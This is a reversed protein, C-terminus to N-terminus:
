ANIPNHLSERIAELLEEGIAQPLYVSFYDDRYLHLPNMDADEGNEGYSWWATTQANGKKGVYCEDDTHRIIESMEPLTLRLLILVEGVRVNFAWMPPDDGYVFSKVNGGSLTELRDHGKPPVSNNRM